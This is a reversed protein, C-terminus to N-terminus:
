KPLGNGYRHYKDNDAHVLFPKYNKKLLMMLLFKQEDVGLLYTRKEANVSILFMYFEQRVVQIHLKAKEQFRLKLLNM